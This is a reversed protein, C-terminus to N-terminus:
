SLLNTYFCLSNTLVRRKEKSAVHVAYYIIGRVIGRQRPLTKVFNNGLLSIFVWPCVRGVSRRNNRANM